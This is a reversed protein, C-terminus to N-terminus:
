ILYSLYRVDMSYSAREFIDIHNEIFIPLFLFSQGNQMQYFKIELYFQAICMFIHMATQLCVVFKSSFVFFLNVFGAQPLLSFEDSM